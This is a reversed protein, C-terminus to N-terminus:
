HNHSLIRRVLNAITGLIASYGILLYTTMNALSFQRDPFTTILWHHLSKQLPIEIPKGTLAMALVLIAILAFTLLYTRIIM